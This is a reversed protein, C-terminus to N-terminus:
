ESAIAKEFAPAVETVLLELSRRYFDPTDGHDYKNVVLTGFGGLEEYCQVLRETVTEPSGVLWLHDILYDVDVDEDRHHPDPKLYQVWDFARLMPFNMVNWHDAMLSNRVWEKAETDSEAVVV